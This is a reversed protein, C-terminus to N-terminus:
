FGGVLCFGFLHVFCILYFGIIRKRVLSFSYVCVKKDTHLFQHLELGDAYWLWEPESYCFSDWNTSFIVGLRQRVEAWKAMSGGPATQPKREAGGRWGAFTEKTSVQLLSTRGRATRTSSRSSGGLQIYQCGHGPITRELLPFALLLTGLRASCCLLVFHWPAWIWEEWACFM